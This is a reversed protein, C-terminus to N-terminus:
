KHSKGDITEGTLNGLFIKITKGGDQYMIQVDCPDYNVYARGNNDIVEVRTIKNGLDVIDTKEM